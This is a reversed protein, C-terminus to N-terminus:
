MTNYFPNASRGSQGDKGAGGDQGTLRALPHTKGHQKRVRRTADPERQSSIRVPNLGSGSTPRGTPTGGAGASTAGSSSTPGDGPSALPSSPHAGKLEYASVSRVSGTESHGASKPRRLLSSPTAEDQKVDTNEDKVTKDGSGAVTAPLSIKRESGEASKAQSKRAKGPPESITRTKSTPGTSPEKSSTKTSTYSTDSLSHSSKRVTSGTLEKPVADQSKEDKESTTQHKTKRYSDRKQSKVTSDTSDTGRKDGGTWTHRKSKIKCGDRAGASTPTKDSTNCTQFTLGLEVMGGGDPASTLSSLYGASAEEKSEFIGVLQRVKVDDWATTATSKKADTDSDSSSTTTSGSSSDSSSTNQRKWGGRTEQANANSGGSNEPMSELKEEIIIKRETMQVSVQTKHKESNSHITKMGETKISSEKPIAVSKVEISHINPSRPRPIPDMNNSHFSDPSAVDLQQPRPADHTACSAVSGKEVIILRKRVSPMGSKLEIDRTVKHVMGQGSAGGGSPAPPTPSNVIISGIERILKLTDNSMKYKPDGSADKRFTLPTTSHEQVKIEIAEKHQKVTGVSWTIDEEPYACVVSSPTLRAEVHTEASTTVPLSTPRTASEQSQGQSETSMDPSGSPSRRTSIKVLTEVEVSEVSKASDDSLVGESSGAAQEGSGRSGKYSDRKRITPVHDRKQSDRRELEQAQRWVTGAEPFESEVKYLSVSMKSESNVLLGKPRM